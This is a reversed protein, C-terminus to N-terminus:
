KLSRINVVLQKTQDETVFYPQVRGRMSGRACGLAIDKDPQLISSILYHDDAPADPHEGGGRNGV